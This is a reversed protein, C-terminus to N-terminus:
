DTALSVDFYGKKSVFPKESKDRPKSEKGRDQGSHGVNKHKEMIKLTGRGGGNVGM